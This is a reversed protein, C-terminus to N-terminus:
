LAALLDRLQSWSSITTVDEREEARKSAAGRYLVPFLGASRAGIVDAAYNDGAYWVEEPRLRAKELALRFIRPNPKRFLYESSALIFEFANGPFLRHIRDAVVNGAYTINSLVATRIGETRLFFLLEGAGETPKGPSAADWFTRDIEEQPLDFRIGLSEYLYSSFMHNPIEVTNLNRLAPDSRGLERNISEAEQQVQEATLGYRNEVARALLAETGRVGDFREESVLTQGYDFLIMKPRQVCDM